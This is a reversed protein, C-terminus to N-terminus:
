RSPRRGDREQRQKKEHRRMQKGEDSYILRNKAQARSSGLTEKELGRAVILTQGENYALAVPLESEGYVVKYNNDKILARINEDDKLTKRIEQKIVSLGRESHHGKGHNIVLVDVGQNLCWNLSNEFKSWAEARNLGHLDLEEIKM